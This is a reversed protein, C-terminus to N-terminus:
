SPTVDPLRRALETFDDPGLATKITLVLNDFMPPPLVM